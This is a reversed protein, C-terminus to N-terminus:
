QMRAKERKLALIQNERRLAEVDQELEELEDGSTTATTAESRRSM